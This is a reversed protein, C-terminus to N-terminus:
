IRKIIAKDAYTSTNKDTIIFANVNLKDDITFQMIYDTEIINIVYKNNNCFCDGISSYCYDSALYATFIYDKNYIAYNKNIIDKNLPQQFVTGCATLLLMLFYKM